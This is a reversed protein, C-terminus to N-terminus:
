AMGGEPTGANEGGVVIEQASGRIHPSVFTAILDSLEDPAEEPVL